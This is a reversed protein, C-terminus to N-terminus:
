PEPEGNAGFLEIVMAKTLEHGPGTWFPHLPDLYTEREETMWAFENFDVTPGLRRLDAVFRHYEAVLGLEKVKDRADNHWPPVFFRLEIGERACYDAIKQLEQYEAEPRRYDALSGALSVELQYEWMAQRDWDPLGPPTLFSSGYVYVTAWLTNRNVVYSLKNDLLATTQEVRNMVQGTNYQNFGLGIVVEKSPSVQQAWWFTDCVEGLTAGGFALNSLGKGSVERVLKTPIWQVRSDGLAVTSYPERVFQQYAWLLRNFPRASRAKIEWPVWHQTPLLCFPDAVVVAAVVVFYVSLFLSLRILFRKLEVNM